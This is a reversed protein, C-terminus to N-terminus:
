AWKSWDSCDPESRWRDAANHLEAMFHEGVSYACASAFSDGTEHEVDSIRSGPCKHAPAAITKPLQQGGRMIEVLTHAIGEQLWPEKPTGGTTPSRTDCFTTEVRSSSASRPIPPKAAPRCGDALRILVDTRPLPEDLYRELWRIATEAVDLFRAPFGQNPLPTAATFGVHAFDPSWLQGIWVVSFNAAANAVVARVVNLVVRHGAAGGGASGSRGIKGLVLTLNAM